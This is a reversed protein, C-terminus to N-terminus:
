RTEGPNSEAWTERARHAVYARITEAELPSLLQRFSPMGQDARQGGIVIDLWHGHVEAPISRLDPLVGGSVAGGGHCAACHRTFLLRGQAIDAPKRSVEVNAPEAQPPLRWGEPLRAKGGLKFTLVRSINPLDGSAKRALAGGELGYYGGWGVAVAVYQDGDVSYSVPAAMIGTQAFSEWLAKGTRADLALFRGDATGQFVLGGATALVGGSWPGAHRHRWVERQKVPDWAILDGKLSAAAAAVDKASEAPLFNEFRVAVNPSGKHFRFASDQEFRTAGLDLSPIYVLGTQPSYAMPQWNHGGAPGPLVDFAKDKYLAAPIIDPRGTKPDLGTTWNVPIYNRGSLFQGTQRDLVYFFGNKPAQVLTKRLKGDVPLDLLMIHQTATYDWADGPTTQFHWRYQGTTRDLAVISSLFLNDGGGPSRVHPNWVAGNGTGLYVLDLEPDYAMSDWVTGGGGYTWWKGSWTAAAKRMEPSEFPDKPDGPVTYFRWRLKGTEIDYASVYGRVGYDAGSNGILVLGNAVMPAGTITYPRTRDTITDVRWAPRGTRADVAILRGDFTALLVKNGWVAVGRSVVDCCGKPGHERPVEPDFSWLRKGTRADFAYLISWSGSVYMVGDVVIPTAEIGRNTDLDAAWALGLDKVTEANVQTLASYQRNRWDGYHTLWQGPESAANVIRAHTVGQPQPAATEGPGCASLCMALLAGALPKQSNQRPARKM